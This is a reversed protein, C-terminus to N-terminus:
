RRQIYTKVFANFKNYGRSREIIQQEEDGFAAECEDEERGGRM